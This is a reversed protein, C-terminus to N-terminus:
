DQMLENIGVVGGAGLGIGLSNKGLFKARTILWPNIVADMKRAGQYMKKVGKALGVNTDTFGRWMRGPLRNFERGLEAGFGKVQTNGGLGKLMNGASNLMQKGGGLLVRAFGAQKEELELQVFALKLLQKNKM